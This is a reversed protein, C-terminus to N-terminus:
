VVIILNKLFSLLKSANDLLEKKLDGEAFLSIVL